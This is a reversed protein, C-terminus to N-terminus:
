WWVVLTKLLTWASAAAGVPSQLSATPFVGRDSRHARAAPRTHTPFGAGQLPTQTRSRFGVLRTTQAFRWDELPGQGAEDAKRPATPLRCSCRKEGRNSASVVGGRPGPHQEFGPGPRRAGRSKQATGHARTGLCLERHEGSRHCLSRKSTGGALLSCTRWAAVAAWYAASMEDFLWQPHSARAGPDLLAPLLNKRRRDSQLPQRNAGPGHEAVGPGNSAAPQGILGVLARLIASDSCAPQLLAGPAAIPQDRVRLRTIAGDAEGGHAALRGSRM